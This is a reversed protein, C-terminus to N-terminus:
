LMFGSFTTLSVKQTWYGKGYYHTVWARDGRQLSLVVMNTGTQRTASKYAVLRVKSVSNLVIDLQLDQAAYENAFKFIVM